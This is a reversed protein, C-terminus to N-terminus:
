RRKIFSENPVYIKTLNSNHVAMIWRDQAWIWMYKNTYTIEWYPIGENGFIIIYKGCRIYELDPLGMADKRNHNIIAKAHDSFCEINSLNKQIKIETVEDPPLPIDPHPPRSSQCGIFLIITLLGIIKYM